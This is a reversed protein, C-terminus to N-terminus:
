GRQLRTTVANNKTTKSMKSCLCPQRSYTSPRSPESQTLFRRNEHIIPEPLRFSHHIPSNQARAPPPSNTFKPLDPFATFRHIPSNQAGPLLRHIPSNQSPRPCLWALHIPSNQARALHHIPSNQARPLRHIPSNQSAPVSTFQHFRTRTQINKLSTSAPLHTLLPNPGSPPSNM